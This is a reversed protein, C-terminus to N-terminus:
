KSKDSWKTVLFQIFKTLEAPYSLFPSHSSTMREVIWEVASLGLMMDQVAPPLANDESCHIYACHGAYASAAWAPAPSPSTFSKMSHPLLAQIAESALEDPVGAYFIQLPDAPTLTGTAEQM